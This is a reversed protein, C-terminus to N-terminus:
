APLAREAQPKLWLRLARTALLLAISPQPLQSQRALVSTRLISLHSGGASIKQATFVRGRNAQDQLRKKDISCPVYYFYCM